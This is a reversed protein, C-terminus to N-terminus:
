GSPLAAPVIRPPPRTARFWQACFIVILVLDVADGGYYMLMSGAQAQDGPVGAPPYAYLSKALISHVGMALVLVVARYLYSPRHIVPDLGIMAATFLYGALLVHAHVVVHVLAHEHMIRYLDTTYLVALGGMNLVAATVPHAVLAFAPQSLLRVCRRSRAVPLARLGLTIPAGLVLLIPALMGLLLHGTMHAVFSTQAAVPLPGILAAGAVLLGAYWRLTRWPNWHKSQPQRVLGIAYLLGLTALIVIWPWPSPHGMTQHQAHDTM